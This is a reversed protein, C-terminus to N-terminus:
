LNASESVSAVRGQVQNIETVRVVPNPMSNIVEAFDAKTVSPSTATQRAAFTPSVIGGDQMYSSGALAVGGGLVNLRSAEARLKPNANVGKTLVIEGGEAEGYHQGNGTLQIGGEAHSAGVLVGGKAFKPPSPPKSAAIVGIQIAGLVGAIAAMAPAAAVGAPGLSAGATFAAIVAQATQIVAMTISIAKAINFQELEIKYREQAAKKELASIKEAKQEESLTSAEIADLDRQKQEDVAQLRNSANVSLISQLAQLAQTAIALGEQMDQFDEDSMGLADAATPADPEGLLNRIKKIQNEILKLNKLEEETLEGDAKALATTLALKQELFGLAIKGKAAALEKENDISLEAADNELKEDLALAQIKDNFEQARADRDMEALEAEFKAREALQKAYKEEDVAGVMDASATYAATEDDINAIKEILAEREIFAIKEAREEANEIRATARDKEVNAIDDILKRENEFGKILDAEAKEAAKIEDETQKKRENANKVQQAHEQNRISNEKAKLTRLKKINAAEIDGLRARQEALAQEDEELNEGLALQEELIDVREQQLALEREMNEEQIANAAAIADAREKMSNTEDEAILQLSAVEAKRKSTEVLLEREADRLAQMRKELVQAAKSENVIEDTIGSFAGKATEAADAFDGSFVQTLAEGLKSVRDVLVSVTAGIGALAQSLLESGRKTQTLFTVMSGLAIVLAGIGTSIIAVKLVQLAGSFGGTAAASAKTAAAQAVMGEKFTSLKTIIGGLNVGMINIQGTVGKLAEEYNGVNRRNDGVAKENEKLKDSLAKINAQMQKGQKTGERQAKSLGNYEKTQLALRARLQENSGKAADVVVKNNAYEKNSERLSKSVEATQLKLDAQRKANEKADIAGVKLLANNEKQQLKLGNLAETYKASASASQLMAENAKKIDESNIEIDVLVKKEEAM